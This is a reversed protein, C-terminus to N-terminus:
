PQEQCIREEKLPPFSTPRIFINSSQCPSSRTRVPLAGYCSLTFFMGLCPSMVKCLLSCTRFFRSAHRWLTIFLYLCPSSCIIPAFRIRIPRPDHGSLNLFMNLCSSSIDQFLWSYTRLPLFLVPLFHQRGPSFCTRVSHPVYGWSDLFM